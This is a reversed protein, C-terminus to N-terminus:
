NLSKKEDESESESKRSGSGEESIDVLGSIHGVTFRKVGGTL